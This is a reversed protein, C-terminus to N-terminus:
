AGDSLGSNAAHSTRSPIVDIDSLGSETKRVRLNMAAASASSLFGSDDDRARSFPAPFHCVKSVLINTRADRTSASHLRSVLEATAFALRIPFSGITRAPMYVAM